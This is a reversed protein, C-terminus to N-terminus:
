PHMKEGIHNLRPLSNIICSTTFSLLRNIMLPRFILLRRQASIISHKQSTIVTKFLDELFTSHFNIDLHSFNHYEAFCTVKVSLHKLSNM